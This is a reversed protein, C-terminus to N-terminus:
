FSTYPRDIPSLDSSRPHAKDYKEPSSFKEVLPIECVKQRLVIFNPRTLPRGISVYEGFKTFKPGLTRYYWAAVHMLREIIRKYLPNEVVEGHKGITKTNKRNVANGSSIKNHRQTCTKLVLTGCRATTGQSLVRGKTCCFNVRITLLMQDVHKTQCPDLWNLGFEM